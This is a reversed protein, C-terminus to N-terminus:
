PSFTTSTLGPLKLNVITDIENPIQPVFPVGTMALQCFQEKTNEDLSEYWSPRFYINEFSRVAIQVLASCISDEYKSLLSNVYEGIVDDDKELWSIIISSGSTTAVASMFLDQAVVDVDGLDQLINGDFDEAPAFGGAFMVPVVDDFEFIVSKIQDFRGDALVQAFEDYHSKIDRLGADTGAAQLEVFKQLANQTAISKGKDADRLIEPLVQSSRKAYYEKAAVRFALTSCQDPRGQFEENEICSFLEKDHKACFGYFTSAQKIGLKKPLILGNAETLEKFGLKYGLVHRDEAIHKLAAGVSVTHASIIKGSCDGLGAEAALCDKTSFSKKLKAEQAWPNLPEQTERNLHCRKFKKGSGCPCPDNRGIKM